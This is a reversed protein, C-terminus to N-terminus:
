LLMLNQKELNQVPRQRGPRLVALAHAHVRQLFSSTHQTLGDHRQLQEEQRSAQQM